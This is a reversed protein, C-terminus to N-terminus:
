LRYFRTANGGFVKNKEETSFSEMYKELMSKWQVYMGALLIVPHDSGFLLRDTGFAKFIVDLYPYFDAPSWEAWDAETFLGSVKCCVNDHLAIRTILTKWKEMEGTRILPKACHDIVFPQDPFAEVLSLAAELQSPYILIDYTYDFKSLLSIGRRFATGHMFDVPEAQVIHRYGRIVPFQKFYELRQELGESQLDVWGVVGRIIPHTRALEVLFLTELESQDAQVAVCGDIGNRKLTPALHEPLYDKQLIKMHDTIWGDRQRNYKWFHVHADISQEHM